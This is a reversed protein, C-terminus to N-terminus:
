ALSNICDVITKKSQIGVLRTQEVGDSFFILTPLAVIGFKTTLEHQAQVDVKGVTVPLESDIQELIPAISRCPGCTISWFDIVAIGSSVIGELNENTVTIM